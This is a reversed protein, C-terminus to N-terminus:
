LLAREGADHPLYCQAIGIGYPLYRKTARLYTEWLSSYRKVM